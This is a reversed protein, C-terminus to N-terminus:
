TVIRVVVLPCVVLQKRACDSGDVEAGGMAAVDILVGVDVDRVPITRTFAQFCKWRHFLSPRRKWLFRNSFLLAKQTSTSKDTGLLLTMGVPAFRLPPVQQEDDADDFRFPLTVRGKAMGFRIFWLGAV